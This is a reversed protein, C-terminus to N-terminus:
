GSLFGETDVFLLIFSCLAIVSLFGVFLYSRIRDFISEGRDIHYINWYYHQGSYVILFAGMSILLAGIVKSIVTALLKGFALGMTISALGTRLWALFTRENAFLDRARSGTIPKTQYAFLSLSALVSVVKEWLKPM